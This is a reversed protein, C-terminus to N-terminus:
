PIIKYKTYDEYSASVDDYIANYQRAYMSTTFVQVMMEEVASFLSTYVNNVVTQLEEPSAFTATLQSTAEDYTLRDASPQLDAATVDSYTVTRVKNVTSKLLSKQQEVEASINRMRTVLQETTKLDVDSIYASIPFKRLQYVPVKDDPYVNKMGLIYGNKLETENISNKVPIQSIKRQNDSM